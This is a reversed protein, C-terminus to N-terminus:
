GDQGMQSPSASQAIDVPDTEGVAPGSSPASEGFGRNDNVHSGADRSGFSAVEEGEDPEQVMYRKVFDSASGQMDHSTTSVPNDHGPEAANSLDSCCRVDTSVSVGTTGATSVPTMIPQRRTRSSAVSSAQSTSTRPDDDRALAAVLRGQGLRPGAAYKFISFRIRNARTDEVVVKRGRVPFLLSITSSQVSAARTSMNVINRAPPHGVDFTNGSLCRPQPDSSCVAHLPYQHSWM